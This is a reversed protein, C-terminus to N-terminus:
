VTGLRVPQQLRLAEVAMERLRFKQVKGSSTMPFEEMVLIHRPIKFSALKGRCFAVLDENSVWQGPRPVVCACPVESLRLDPVGIVQVKDIAPHRLLFGEVEIPDVNEGGVKLLDKYRGLFRITGDERMTAVDGTHLWGDADVAKATEEPKKYYGQMVSYGRVCLEGPTGPLLSAGTDPDIVKFEYGPLPSGSALCRDDEPSDLFSRSVGCGVETMGWATVTPCLLKQARRAAPESSAMGAAFLGTRLSSCDTKECDRHSILEHFHTDFGDLITVREQQILRLAEGSDFLTTLVMRAGTAVLMLLGEYFGFAHFLPLYMLIVDRSTIGMRSAADVITRQINHCHMVGKPFGTTGSTYMILVTGDPDIQQHRHEMEEGPVSDAAAMVEAWRYTGRYPSDGLVLVRKLEPFKRPHLNGPNGDEIEPCVQRVMDLYDVPGSRDVTILTTSDSQWVVYELDSTRFRTNIPVIVAGIKALAFFSYIWEPRNPMWLSVKDGPQIGLRIFARAICNVEEQLQAFSWRRGEYYLAERPGWCRAAEDLLTGLTKKEAWDAM